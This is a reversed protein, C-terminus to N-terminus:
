KIYSAILKAKRNDLAPLPMFGETLGTKETMVQFVSRAFRDIKLRVMEEDLKDEDYNDAYLLTNLQQLYSIPINQHPMRSKIQLLQRCILDDTKSGIKEAKAAEFEDFVHQLVDRTESVTSTETALSSFIWNRILIVPTTKRWKRRELFGQELPTQATILSAKRVIHRQYFLKQIKRKWFPQKMNWRSIDGLPILIYPIDMRHAQRVIRSAKYNWCGLIIIVDADKMDAAIDIDNRLALMYKKYIGVSAKAKSIHLYAKM